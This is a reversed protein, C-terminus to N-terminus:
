YDKHKNARNLERKADREKISQRKDYLKKGRALGISIKMKGNKLYVRLPVLSYGKQNTKGILRKIEAKHLLLKRPRLPDHNGYYAFAYPSIHMQHVFVEGKKITAYSDKLNIQGNRMSKVETGVLVMGAELEDDIFYNHRAKRNEALIKKQSQKQM